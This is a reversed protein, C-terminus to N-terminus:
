FHCCYSTEACQTACRLIKVIQRFKTAQLSIVPEQETHHVHEGGRGKGEGRL